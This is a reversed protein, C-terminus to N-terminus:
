TSFVWLVPDTPQLHAGGRASGAALCCPTQRRGRHLSRGEVGASPGLTRSASQARPTQHLLDESLQTNAPVCKTIRM